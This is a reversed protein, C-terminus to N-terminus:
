GISNYATEIEIFGQLHCVETAQDVFHEVFGGRGVRLRKEISKVRAFPAVHMGDAVVVGVSAAHDQPTSLAILKHHDEAARNHGSPPDFQGVQRSPHFVAHDFVLLQAPLRGM